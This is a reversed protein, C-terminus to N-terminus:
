CKLKRDRQALGLILIFLFALSGGGSSSIPEPNVVPSNVTATQSVTDNLDSNDTVTLSVTFTGGSSYTHSPNQATSTNGDGFDWVFSEVTGDTDTSTNTLNITVGDILISFSANPAFVGNAAEIAANVSDLANVLGYGFSNDPTLNRDASNRLIDRVQTATLNPNAEIILAVVGATLPCSFSTGNVNAYGTDSSASAVRVSSGMAVVDPKIRGDASPGVSSFSSLAGSAQVAGVAIVFHGDSPAGITTVGAGSNGASNIVVIGNEAAIDACLTVITTEGDLDGATYNTGEDFITYGLSSTIIQAGNTDAWESAACWNDEEVHLESETNETKALYYTAGYAPGILNGSSFGGITSLTNTGHSGSGMDSSDSVDSDGNVFDQTGAINMQSFSEHSLRNFGSDFIAIVVGSGTYGLDHVAPVQIQNNQTFSAGYDLAFANSLKDADEQSSKENSNLVDPQRKLKRIIDISRVFDFNAIKYIGESKAEVSIANITKLQHRIKTVQEKVLTFYEANIPIDKESVLNDLGLNVTRRRLSNPSLAKRAKLLKSEIDHGKDKLYIFALVTSSSSTKNAHFQKKMGASIKDLPNQSFADISTCIAISSLLLLFITKQKIM